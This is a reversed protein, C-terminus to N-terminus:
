KSQLSNGGENVKNLLNLSWNHMSSLKNQMSRQFKACMKLGYLFWAMGFNLMIIDNTFNQWAAM